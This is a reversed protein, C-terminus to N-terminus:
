GGPEFRHGAQRRLATCALGPADPALLEDVRRAQEDTLGATIDAVAQARREDLRGAAMLAGLMPLRGGLALSLEMRDEAQARSDVLHFAPEEPAM